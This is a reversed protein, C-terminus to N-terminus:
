SLLTTVAARILFALSLALCSGLVRSIQLSFHLIRGSIVLGWGFLIIMLSTTLVSAANNSPIQNYFLLIPLNILTVVSQTGTIAIIASPYIALSSKFAHLIWFFVVVVLLTGLSLACGLTLDINLGPSSFLTAMTALFYVLLVFLGLRVSAQIQKPHSQFVCLRWLNELSRLFPQDQEMRHWLKLAPRFSRSKINVFVESM